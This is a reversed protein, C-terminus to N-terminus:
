QNDVGGLYPMYKTTWSDTVPRLTNTRNRLCIIAIMVRKVTEVCRLLGVMGDSFSHFAHPFGSPVHSARQITRRKRSTQSLRQRQDRSRM